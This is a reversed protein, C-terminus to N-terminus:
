HINKAADTKVNTEIQDTSFFEILFRFFLNMEEAM